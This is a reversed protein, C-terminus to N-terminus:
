LEGNEVHDEPCRDCQGCYDKAPEEREGPKSIIPNSAKLSRKDIGMGRKGFASTAVLVTVEENLFKQHSNKRASERVRRRRGREAVGGGGNGGGGGCAYESRCYILTPGISGEWLEALDSAINIESGRRGGGHVLCKKEVYFALNPRAFTTRADVADRLGLSTKIDEAVRATATATVAMMPIEPFYDRLVGLQRFEPSLLPSTSHSDAYTM